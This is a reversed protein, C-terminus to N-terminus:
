PAARADKILLEAAPLAATLTDLRFVDNAFLADVKILSVAAFATDINRPDLADQWRSIGDTAALSKLRKLMAASKTRSFTAGDFLPEIRLLLLTIPASNLRDRGISLLGFSGSHEREQAISELAERWENFSGKDITAMRAVARDAVPRQFTGDKYFERLGFYKTQALGFDLAAQDGIVPEGTLNQTAAKLGEFLAAMDSKPITNTRAVVDYSSFKVDEITSLMQRAVVASSQAEASAPRLLALVMGAGILDRKTMQSFSM